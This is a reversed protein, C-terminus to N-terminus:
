KALEMRWAYGRQIVFIFNIKVRFIGFVGGILRGEGGFKLCVAFNIGRLNKGTLVNGMVAATQNGCFLGASWLSCPVDGAGFYTQLVFMMADTMLLLM